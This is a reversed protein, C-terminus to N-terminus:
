TLHMKHISSHTCSATPQKPNHGILPM